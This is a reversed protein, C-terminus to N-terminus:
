AHIENMEFLEHEIKSLKAWDARLSLYPHLLQMEIRGLYGENIVSKLNEPKVIFMNGLEKIMDFREDLLTIKFTMIVEHYKSVDKTLVLGGAYSVPFKKFHDLLLCHLLTGVETLYSELNEGDLSVHAEDRVRQIFDVVQNCVLTSLTNVAVIDDRPKFDSKKQRAFLVEMWSAVVAIKRQMIANLKEEIASFFENKFIMMERQLTPSSALMPILQAQFHHQFIQLTKTVTKIVKLQGFEPESKHDIAHLAELEVDLGVLISSAGLEKVLLKFLLSLCLSLDTMQALEKSRHVSQMYVSFCKTADKVTPVWCGDASPTAPFNQGLPSGSLQTGLESSMASVTSMTNAVTLMISSMVANSTLPTATEKTPSSQQSRSLAKRHHFMTKTKIFLSSQLAGLNNQLKESLWTLEMDIYRSNELYPVFLDEFSRNLLSSLAPSGLAKSIVKEDFRHLDTVLKATAAHSHALAQLFSVPSDNRARELLGELYNQISQAFIRQVFVQIVSAANPFVVFIVKWENHIAVTIEEYLRILAPDVESFDEKINTTSEQDMEAIKLLNIFFAHQNVYTQVCSSGGNFDLLTCAIKNMTSGDGQSYAQDFEVLLSKELNECYKEINARAAETDAIDVEKAITNLRRAIIAAKYGGDPESQRLTDLRTFIGKNFELFYQILDKAEAARTKQKDITELQEGIRIATNGVESLRSDLSEFARHVDDFTDGFSKLKRQRQSESAAAQDEQDDIKAQVRKKLRLLEDSAMDFARIFPKPDFVIAKVPSTSRKSAAMMSSTLNDVFELASFKEKFKEYSVADKISSIDAKIPSSM